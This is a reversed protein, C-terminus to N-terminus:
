TSCKPSISSCSTRAGEHLMIGGPQGPYVPLAPAGTPLRIDSDCGPASGRSRNQCKDKVGGQALM